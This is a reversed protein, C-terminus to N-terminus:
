NFGVQLGVRGHLNIEDWGNDFYNLYDIESPILAKWQYNISRVFSFQGFVQINKIPFNWVLSAMLDVWQRNFDRSGSNYNYRYYFDPNHLFREFELGIRTEKRVWSVELRQANGGPGVSAGLVQGENTFGHRVTSDTYWSQANNILKLNPAQLQVVEIGLQIFDNSTPSKRLPFMKRVGAVYGRPIGNKFLNFPSAFKDSRGYQLYIEAHDDPLSLRAFISGMRARGPTSSTYQIQALDAGLFLGKVGKPSYTFVGGILRRQGSSDKARYLFSGGFSRLPELPLTGSQELQGAVVQWEFNGIPTKLVKDSQFSLHPFGPANNSMLLSYYRGPGWWLNETSVAVAVGKYAYQLKSQGGFFKRIPEDKFREPMDIKNLWEYQFKWLINFHDTPFTPFQANFAWNFEPRVQLTVGKYAAVIGASYNFQWGRAPFMSGDNYLLPRHSNFQQIYQLPLVKFQFSKTFDKKTYATMPRVMFSLKDLDLVTSDSLLQKRRFIEETPNNMVPITIQGNIKEATFLCVVMFPLSFSQRVRISIGM